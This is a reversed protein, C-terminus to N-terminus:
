SGLSTTETNKRTIDKVGSGPKYLEEEREKAPNWMAETSPQPHRRKCERIRLNLM